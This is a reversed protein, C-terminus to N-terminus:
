QCKSNEELKELCVRCLVHGCHTQVADRLLNMCLICYLDQPLEAVLKVEYGGTAM